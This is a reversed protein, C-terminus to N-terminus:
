RIAEMQIADSTPRAEAELASRMSAHARTLRSYITKRSVGLTEAMEEPTLDLLYRLALVVRHDFSLGSLAQELAAHEVVPTIDDHAAPERAPPLDLGIWRPTRRVQDHCANVLLRHCWGDYRSLERLLPLNRWISVLAQQSADDAMAPDRLIHHALRYLRPYADAALAEFAEEDGQQARVVLAVDV